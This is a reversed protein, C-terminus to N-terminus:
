SASQGELTVSVTMEQYSDGQGQRELTLEVTQDVQMDLLKDVLESYSTIEDDDCATIIDGSQIGARMAPSDMDISTVYAGYPMEYEKRITSSIETGHVGLYVLKEENSLKEITKKLESIGIACLQNPMDDNEYDDYIIGIVEGSMNILVGSAETSGYIDTTLVKYDTDALELPIDQSTIMGYYVSDSIGSPSGLALVPQGVATDSTSSGLTSIAIDDLLGDSIETLDVALVALGTTTDVEQIVAEDQEDTCFQVLISDADELAEYNVLILLEKGNNALILGSTENQNELTDNIWNTDSKVTTVTVLCKQATNTLDSLSSYTAIYNDLATSEEAEDDTGQETTETEESAEEQKIQLQEEDVAMDQPDVEETEEPFAVTEAEEAPNIKSSIIPELLSFTICAVLGFVVALGATIITRKLLKRKNVPREKIKEKLFDTEAKPIEQLEHGVNKSEKESDEKKEEDKAM